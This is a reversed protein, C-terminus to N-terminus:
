GRAGGGPRVWTGHVRGGVGGTGGGRVGFGVGGHRVGCARPVHGVSAGPWVRTWPMRGLWAGRGWAEGMGWACAGGGHWHCAQNQQFRFLTTSGSMLLAEARREMQNGVNSPGAGKEDERTTERLRGRLSETSVYIM